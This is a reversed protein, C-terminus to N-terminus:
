SSAEESYKKYQELPWVYEEPSLNRHYDYFCEIFQAGHINKQNEDSGDWMHLHADVIFYSNGDKTYM